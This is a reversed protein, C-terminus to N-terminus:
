NSERLVDPDSLRGHAYTQSEVRLVTRLHDWEFGAIQETLYLRRM